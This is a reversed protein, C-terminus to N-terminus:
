TDLFTNAKHETIVKFESAGELYCRWTRLAHIVALLEQETVTYHQEAPTMKRSEYAVVRHGQRLIAGLGFGSSDTIVEFQLPM